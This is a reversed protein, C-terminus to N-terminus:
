RQQRTNVQNERDNKSLNYFKKSMRLPAADM